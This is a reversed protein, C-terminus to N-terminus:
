CCQKQTTKLYFIHFYIKSSSNNPHVPVLKEDYMFNLWFTSIFISHFDLYCDVLFRFNHVNKTDCHFFFSGLCFSKIAFKCTAMPFKSFQQANNWRFLKQAVIFKNLAKLLCEVLLKFLTSCKRTQRSQFYKEVCLVISEYVRCCRHFYFTSIRQPTFSCFGSTFHFKVSNRVVCNSQEDTTNRNTRFVTCFFLPIENFDCRM